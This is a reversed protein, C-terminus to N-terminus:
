AGAEPPPPPAPQHYARALKFVGYLRGPSQRALHAAIAHAQDAEVFVPRGRTDPGIRAVLCGTQQELESADADSLRHSEIMVRDIEAQTM